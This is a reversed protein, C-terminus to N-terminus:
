YMVGLILRFTQAYGLSPVPMAGGALGPLYGLGDLPFFIGWQAQAYFGDLIDPGDESRYYATVDLEVGLDDANGWTQLPESARSWVVDARAGLLQGFSNRIFDYSIGPRFYYAGGVQRMVNRWFILDIRYNPHMYFTSYTRDPANAGAPVQRELGGIRSLGEADQDGSAYGASFYIGLQDNLLRYEGEFAFGGQLVIAANTSDPGPLYQTNSLNAIEGYVFVGEIELRLKEYLFQAWVDVTYINEGRRVFIPQPTGGPPFDSFNRDAGGPVLTQDGGCIVCLGFPNNTGSSTLNQGRYIFMGGVNFVADGRALSAAQEEETQRWALGGVYQDVDDLRSRDFPLGGIDAPEWYMLGEAAFDWAGFIYIGALRTSLMLRDVDTQYDSDIGAGSNVLMGLGWHWGMRGFRLEGLGRNRVEAWARRAMISDTLSNYGYVPPHLTTSATDLPAFVSREYRYFPDVVGGVIAPGVAFSNPTSGLVMTDFVDLQMRVRVDDSLYISPELRLRMTAYAFANQDCMGETGPGNCGGAVDGGPRSFPVNDEYPIWVAFPLIAGRDQVGEYRALPNQRNFFFNDQFEGRFRMYGHLDVVTQPTTWRPATADSGDPGGRDLRDQAEAPSPLEEDEAPEEEEEEPAEEEESPEEEVPEEEGAGLQLAGTDPPRLRPTGEEEEDEWEVDEPLPEEAEEPPQALAHAAAFLVSSACILWTLRRM